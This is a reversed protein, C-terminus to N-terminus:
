AYTGNGTTPVGQQICRLPHTRQSTPTLIASATDQTDPGPQQNRGTTIYLPAPRSYDFMLPMVVESGGAATVANVSNLVINSDEAKDSAVGVPHEWALLIPYQTFTWTDVVAFATLVEKQNLTAPTDSAIVTPVIVSLLIFFLWLWKV